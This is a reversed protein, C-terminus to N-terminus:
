RILPLGGMVVVHRMRVTCSSCPWIDVRVARLHWIGGSYESCDRTRHQAASFLRDVLASPIQKMEQRSSHSAADFVTQRDGTLTLLYWDLGTVRTQMLWSFELTLM